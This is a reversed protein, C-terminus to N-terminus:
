KQDPKERIRAQRERFIQLFYIVDSNSWGTQRLREALEAETRIPDPRGRAPDPRTYIDLLAEVQERSQHNTRHVALEIAEKIADDLAPKLWEATRAISAAEHGELQNVIETNLSVNNRKAQQKLRKHLQKPLRLNLKIADSTKDAMSM